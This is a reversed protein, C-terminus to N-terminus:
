EWSPLTATSQSTVATMSSVVTLKISAWLFPSVSNRKHLGSPISVGKVVAISLLDDYSHGLGKDNEETEFACFSVNGNKRDDNKSGLSCILSNGHKRPCSRGLAPSAARPNLQTAQKPSGFKTYKQLPVKQLTSLLTPVRFHKSACGREHNGKEENVLVTPVLKLVYM